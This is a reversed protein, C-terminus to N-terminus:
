SMDTTRKGCYLETLSLATLMMNNEGFLWQAFGLQDAGQPWELTELYVCSVDREPTISTM